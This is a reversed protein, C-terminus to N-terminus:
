PYLTKKPTSITNVRNFTPFLFIWTGGEAQSKHSTTSLVFLFYTTYQGIAIHSENDVIYDLANPWLSKKKIKCWGM